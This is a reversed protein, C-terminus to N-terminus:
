LGAPQAVLREGKRDDMARRWFADQWEQVAARRIAELFRGLLAKASQALGHVHEQRAQRLQIWTHKRGLGALQDAKQPGEVSALFQREIRRVGIAEQGEVDGVRSHRKLAIVELEGFADHSVAVALTEGDPFVRFAGGAGNEVHQVQRDVHDDGMGERRDIRVEHCAADLPLLALHLGGLVRGQRQHFREVDGGIIQLGFALAEALVVHHHRDEAIRQVLQLREAGLDDVGSGGFAHLHDALPDRGFGVVETLMGAVLRFAHTGTRDGVTIEGVERRKM